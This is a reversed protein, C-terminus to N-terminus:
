MWINEKISGQKAAEYLLMRHWQESMCNCTNASPVPRGHEMRCMVAAGCIPQSIGLQVAGVYHLSQKSPRGSYRFTRM